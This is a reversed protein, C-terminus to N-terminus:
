VSAVFGRCPCGYRAEVASRIEDAIEQVSMPRNAYCVTIYGDWVHEVISFFGVDSYHEVFGTDGTDPNYLIRIRVGDQPLNATAQAVAAVGKMKLGHKDIM